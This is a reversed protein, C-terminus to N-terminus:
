QGSDLATTDRYEEWAKGAGSHGADIISVMSAVASIAVLASLAPRV